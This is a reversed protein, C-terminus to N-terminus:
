LEKHKSWLIIGEIALILFIGDRIALSWVSTSVHIWLSLSNSGLWLLFCGRRRRNNLIVGAVSMITCIAGIIELYM